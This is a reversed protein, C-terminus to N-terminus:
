IFEQFLHEIFQQETPLKNVGESFMLSDLIRYDHSHIGRAHEGMRDIQEELSLTDIKKKLMILRIQMYEDETIRFTIYEGRKELYAVNYPNVTYNSDVIKYYGQTTMYICVIMEEGYKCLMKEYDENLRKM